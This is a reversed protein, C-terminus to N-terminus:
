NYTIYKGCVAKFRGAGSRSASGRKKDGGLLYDKYITVECKTTDCNRFMSLDKKIFFLEETKTVTENILYVETHTQELCFLVKESLSMERNM